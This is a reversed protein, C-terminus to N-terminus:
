PRCLQVLQDLNEGTGVDIGDAIRHRKRLTRHVLMKMPEECIWGAEPDLVMTGSLASTKMRFTNM